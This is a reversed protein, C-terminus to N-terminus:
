ISLCKRELCLSALTTLGAPTIGQRFPGLTKEEKAAGSTLSEICSACVYLLGGSEQFLSVYVALSDFGKIQISQMPREFAWVASQANLYVAVDSGMAQLSVALAFALTARSGGDEQGHTLVILHKQPEPIM